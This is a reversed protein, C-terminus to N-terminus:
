LRQVVGAPPLSHLECFSVRNRGKNKAEYLARDARIIAEQKGQGHGHGHVPYGTAVAGLSATVWLTIGDFLIPEDAISARIREACAEVKDRECIPLVVLFEEGGYRGVLDSSRIAELIRRVAEKIVYDGAAHGHTDNIQKFHDLDLMLVGTVTGARGALDLERSLAGFIAKRNYIGTLSDHMAQFEAADKLAKTEVLQERITATQHKIRLRLLVITAMAFAILSLAGALLRLSREVNWWSPKELLVVDASSRELIRFAQPISFGQGTAVNSGAAQVSCIGTIAVLSGIEHPITRGPSLPEIATFVFDGSSLTLIRDSGSRSNDIVRGEITVLRADFDGELAQKATVAHADIPSRSGTSTYQAQVLNPTFPGIMPFGVVDALDGERLPSTEETQGCLSKVGEQICIMRGPWFLTVAGRVHVRHQFVKNPAFRLVDSIAEVHIRFPDAAGADVIKFSDFNPFLLHAGTLQRQDNFNPSDIARLLIGADILHSYDVDQQRSTVATVISNGILLDLVVHTGSERVAQM